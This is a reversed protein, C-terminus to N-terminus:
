RPRSEKITAELDQLELLIKELTLSVKETTESAQTNYTKVVGDFRSRLEDERSQFKEILDDLRKQMRIYLWAIFGASLGLPGLDILASLLGDPM